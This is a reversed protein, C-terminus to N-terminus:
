DLDYEEDINCCLNGPESKEKDYLYKNIKIKENEIEIKNVLGPIRQGEKIQNIETDIIFFHFGPEGNEFDWQILVLKKYDSSWAYKDQWGGKPIELARYDILEIHCYNYPSGM